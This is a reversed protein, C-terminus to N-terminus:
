SAVAEQRGLAVLVHGAKDRSGSRFTPFGAAHEPIPENAVIQVLGRNCAAGLPFFTMFQPATRVLSAFTSPRIKHFGPLVRILAGFKPPRDHKHTYHAYALGKPTAIEIVDGFRPRKRIASSAMM